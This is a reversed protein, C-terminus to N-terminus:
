LYWNYNIENLDLREVEAARHVIDAINLVLSTETHVGQFGFWIGPKVTIRAYMEKGIVIEEFKDIGNDNICFVFKVQGKPVVLNLTMEKHYKWGKIAGPEVESFYAEGFGNFTSDTKLLGKLVSGGDTEIIPLNTVTIYNLFASGM